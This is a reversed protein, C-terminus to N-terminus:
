VSADQEVRLLCSWAAIAIIAMMWNLVTFLGFWRNDDLVVV